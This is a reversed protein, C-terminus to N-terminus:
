VLAGHCHKFKKGSGCPCDTNRRPPRGPAEAGLVDTAALAQVLYPEIRRQQIFALGRDMWHELATEDRCLRLAEAVLKEYPAFCVGQQWDADTLDDGSVESLVAARNALYYSIRVQELIKAPYFHVNLLIRSRSIFADREAGYKNFLSVVNLGAASMENLLTLRRENMSGIFLVDIDRDNRQVIRSLGDYYGIPLLARVAIGHLALEDVNRQAYDWVTYRKLVAFFEPGAYYPNEPLQELNYLISDPPLPVPNAVLLHSGLVIHRTGSRVATTVAADYGLSTLGGCITEAVENFCQSHPYDPVTAIFVSFRM